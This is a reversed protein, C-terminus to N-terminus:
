KDILAQLEDNKDKLAQLDIQAKGIDGKIKKLDGELLGKQKELDDM